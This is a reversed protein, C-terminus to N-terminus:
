KESILNRCFVFAIYADCSELNRDSDRASWDGECMFNQLRNFTVFMMFLFMVAVKSRLIIYNFFMIQPYFGYFCLHRLLGCLDRIVVLLNFINM